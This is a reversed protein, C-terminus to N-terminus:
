SQIMEIPFDPETHEIYLSLQKITIYTHACHMHYSDFYDWAEIITAVDFLCKFMSRFSFSNRQLRGVCHMGDIRNWYIETRVVIICGM